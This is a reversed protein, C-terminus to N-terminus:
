QSTAIEPKYYWVEINSHSAPPSTPKGNPDVWKWSHWTAFEILCFASKNLVIPDRLITQKNGQKVAFGTLVFVGDSWSTIVIDDNRWSTTLRWKSQLFVYLWAFYITVLGCILALTFKRSNRLNHM